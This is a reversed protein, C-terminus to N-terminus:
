ALDWLLRYYAIREPDPDVGYGAYVLHDYGPGHNWETSWAAVALDAWRDAVGLSGLDVHAAFSGDDHLLTNPACADGHCVVLRDVPPADDLLGRAEAVTLHRHEPFWDGPGEGDAIREDARALRDAVSWTYPCEAVPLVDHLVRLGHGIATAATAPDALWRTDVASRGPVPATVLWSGEANSGEGLVRPVRVWRSAWALRDAEAALDIEPTGHAVWKVYRSGGSRADLRFTLGGLENEWVPTIDDGKALEAVVSPVPVPGTPIEAVERTNM